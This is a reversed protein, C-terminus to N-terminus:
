FFEKNKPFKDAYEPLVPFWCYTRHDYDIYPYTFFKNLGIQAMLLEAYPKRHMMKGNPKKLEGYYFDLCLRSRKTFVGQIAGPTGDLTYGSNLDAEEILKGMNNLIGIGIAMLPDKGREFSVSEMIIHDKNKLAEERTYFVTEDLDPLDLLYIGKQDMLRLYHKWNNLWLRFGELMDESLIDEGVNIFGCYESHAGDMQYDVAIRHLFDDVKADVGIGM